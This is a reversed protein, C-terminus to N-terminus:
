RPRDDGSPRARRRGRWGALDEPADADLISEEDSVDVAVVPAIADVARLAREGDDVARRLAPALARPWCAQAWQRRGDHRAVVVARGGHAAGVEALSRLLAPSPALLDCPAVVVLPASGVSDVTGLADALAVLPGHDPRHDALHLADCGAIPPGGVTHISEAGARVMARVVRAAMPLDDVVLSAKDVGM